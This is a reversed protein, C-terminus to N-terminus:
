SERGLGFDIVSLKFLTTKIRVVMHAFDDGQTVDVTLLGHGSGHGIRHVVPSKGGILTSGVGSVVDGVQKLLAGAEGWLRARQM